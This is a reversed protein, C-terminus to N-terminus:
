PASSRFFRVGNWKWATWLHWSAQNPSLAPFCRQLHVTLDYVIMVLICFFIFAEEHTHTKHHHPPLLSCVLWPCVKLQAALLSDQQTSKIGESGSWTILLPDTCSVWCMDKWLNSIRISCKVNLHFASWRRANVLMVNRHVNSKFAHFCIYVSSVLM